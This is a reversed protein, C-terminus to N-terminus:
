YVDNMERAILNRLIKLDDWVARRYEPNRLVGSPHYTPVLPIGHYEFVQGHMSGIGRPTKLLIQAAIRGVTLIAKPLLYEIQTELYPICAATEEPRPDRNGPPRCKVINAIYCNKERSLDVAGLWKDLYKGAPGVFPLGARDEEAGPGEGIVLVLPDLVGTGPVTHTRGRNLECKGCTAVAKKLKEDAASPVLTDGAIFAPHNLRYGGRVLDELDNLLDWIKASSDSM